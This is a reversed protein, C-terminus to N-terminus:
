PTLEPWTLPPFLRDHEAVIERFRRDHEIRAAEASQIALVMPMVAALMFPKGRCEAVIQECEQQTTLHLQRRPSPFAHVNSM